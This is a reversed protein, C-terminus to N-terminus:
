PSSDRGRRGYTPQLSFLQLPDSKSRPFSRRTSANCLVSSHMANPWRVSCSPLTPMARPWRIGFLARKWSVGSPRALRMKWARRRWIRPQARRPSTPPWVQRARRRRPKPQALKRTRAPSDSNRRAIREEVSRVSEALSPLDAPPPRRFESKVSKAVPSYDLRVADDAVDADVSTGELIPLRDTRDLDVEQSQSNEPV